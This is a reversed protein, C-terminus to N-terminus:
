APNWWDQFDRQEIWLRGQAGPNIRKRAFVPVLAIRNQDVDLQLIGVSCDEGGATHRRKIRDIIPQQRQAGFPFEAPDGNVARPHDSELQFAVAAPLAM